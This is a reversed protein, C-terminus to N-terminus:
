PAIPWSMVPLAVKGGAYPSVPTLAVVQGAGDLFRVTSLPRHDFDVGVLGRTVPVTGVLSGTPGLAQASVATRPALVTILGMPTVTDQAGGNNPWALAFSDLAGSPVVKWATLYPALGRGGTLVENVAVFSAGSPATLATMVTWETVRGQKDYGPRAAIFHLRRGAEGDSVQLGSFLITREFAYQLVVKPPTLGGREPKPVNSDPSMMRVSPGSVQLSYDPVDSSIVQTQKEARSGRLLEREAPTLDRLEAFGSTAPAVGDIMLRHAGQHPIEAVYVGPEQASLSASPRALSVVGAKNYEAPGALRVDAEGRVIAVAVGQRKMEDTSGPLSGPQITQAALGPSDAVTTGSGPLLKDAAAGKPGVFWRQLDIGPGVPASAASVSGNRDAAAQTWRATVLALRYGGLDGAFLVHVQDAAPPAFIPRGFDNPTTIDPTAAIAQRLDALWARDSRLSGRVPEGFLSPRAPTVKSPVPVAEVRYNVVTIVTTVALLGAGVRGATQIRRRRRVKQLRDRVSSWGDVAPADASRDAMVSRLLRTFEAEESYKESIM